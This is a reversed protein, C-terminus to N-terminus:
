PSLHLNAVNGQGNGTAALKKGLREGGDIVVVSMDKNIRKLALACTLGAAGGGVIAVSYKQM